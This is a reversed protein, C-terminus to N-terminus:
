MELPDLISFRQKNRHKIQQKLRQAKKEHSIVEAESLLM